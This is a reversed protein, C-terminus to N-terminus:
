LVEDRAPEATTGVVTAEMRDSPTKVAISSWAPASVTLDAICSYLSRSSLSDRLQRLRTVLSIILLRVLAACRRLTHSWPRHYVTSATLSSESCHFWALLMMLTIQTMQIVIDGCRWARL